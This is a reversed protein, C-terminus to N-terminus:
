LNLIFYEISLIDRISITATIIIAIEMLTAIAIILKLIRIEPHNICERMMDM